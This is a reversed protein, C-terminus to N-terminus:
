YPSPKYGDPVPIEPEPRRDQPSDRQGDPEGPSAARAPRDSRARTGSRRSRKPTAETDAESAAPAAEQREAAAAAASGGDVEATAPAAVAAPTPVPTAAIPAPRPLPAPASPQAAPAVPERTDLIRPSYRVLLAAAGGVSLMAAALLARKLVKGRVSRAPAEPPAIVFQHTATLPEEVIPESDVVADIPGGSAATDYLSSDVDALCIQLTQLVDVISPPRCGPDRELCSFILDELTLPVGLAPDIEPVQDHIAMLMTQTATKGKFPLRGTLILYLVVGLSYIDSRTDVRGDFNEPAMYEPTGIYSRSSTLEHDPDDADRMVQKAIGFDLVKIQDFDGNLLMINSPKLDRHVIGRAHAERLSLCVQSAINVARAVPLRGERKLLRGLTIGEVYEMVIYYIDDDTRGHHFITITNPSTLRSATAAELAFRERFNPDHIQRAPNVSLVKVAVTRGLGSQEAKYVRGMGGVAVLAQIRYRGDIIRGILPDPVGPTDKVPVASPDTM